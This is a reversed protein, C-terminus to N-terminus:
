LYQLGMASSTYFLRDSVSTNGLVRATLVQTIGYLTLAEVRYWM